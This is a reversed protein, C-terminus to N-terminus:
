FGISREHHPDRWQYQARDSLAIQEAREARAREAEVRRAETEAHRQRILQVAEVTSLTEIESLTRALTEAQDRWRAARGAPGGVPVRGTKSYIRARLRQSEALQRRALQGGATRADQAEREAEVVVPEQGARQQAVTQAWVHLGELTHPVAGWRHRVDGEVRERARHAEDRARATARRRLRGAQGYTREADWATHQAALVAQGDTMAANVLPSVVESRVEQAHVEAAAAVAHHQERENAHAHRLASIAAATQEWRAAQIEAHAIAATLRQRETNVFAVPGEAVLGRTSDGAATTAKDLGRDARDRSMATVFQERAEAETEAIVHLTNDNTGRPLGVYLGAASIAEDLVTHSDTVTVGQVGYATSAYALHAHAEVYEAPLKVTQQRKRDNGNEAAYVTGDDTVHQVTFTQRNAVGLGNDNKRAQIVDGVGIDLGDSSTVTRTHDLEGRELRATQIRANLERADENTAVTIADGPAATVAIHEYLADDDDHLHVLGM